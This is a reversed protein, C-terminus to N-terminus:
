ILAHGRCFDFGTQRQAVNQYVMYQYEGTPITAATAAQQPAIKAATKTQIITIHERDNSVGEGNLTDVKKIVRKLNQVDDDNLYYPM